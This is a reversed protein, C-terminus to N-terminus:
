ASYTVKIEPDSTNLIINKGSGSRSANSSPGGGINRMKRYSDLRFYLPFYREVLM